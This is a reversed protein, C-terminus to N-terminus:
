PRARRRRRVPGKQPSTLTSTVSRAPRARRGLSSCGRGVRPLEARQRPLSTSNATPHCKAATITAPLGQDRHRQELGQRRSCQTNPVPGPPLLSSSTRLRPDRRKTWARNPRLQVGLRNSCVRRVASPQRWDKCKEQRSSPRRSVDPGLRDQQHTGTGGPGPRHDQGRAPSPGAPEVM